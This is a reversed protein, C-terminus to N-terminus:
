SAKAVPQRRDQGAEPLCADLLEILHPVCVFKRTGAVDEVKYWSLAETRGFRGALRLLPVPLFSSRM